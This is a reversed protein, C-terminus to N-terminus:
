KLVDDPIDGPVQQWASWCRRPHEKGLRDDYWTEWITGDDCLAVITNRQSGNEPIASIAIVKRLKTEL